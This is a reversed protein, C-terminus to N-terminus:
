KSDGRSTPIQKNQELWIRLDALQYIVRRGAKIFPIQLHGERRDKELSSPQVDIIQAASQSDIALPETPSPKKKYPM